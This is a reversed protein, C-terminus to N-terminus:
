QDRWLETFTLGGQSNNWVQKKNYYKHESTEPPLHQRKTLKKLIEEDRNDHPLETRYCTKGNDRSMVPKMSMHGTCKCLARCTSPGM